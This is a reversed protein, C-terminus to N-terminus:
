GLLTLVWNESAACRKPETKLSSSSVLAAYDCFFRKNRRLGSEGEEYDVLFVNGDHDVAKFTGTEDGKQTSIPRYEPLITYLRQHLDTVIPKNAKNYM